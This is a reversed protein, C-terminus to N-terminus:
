QCVGPWLGHKYGSQEANSRKVSGSIPSGTECVLLYQAQDGHWVGCRLALGVGIQRVSSFRPGLLVLPDTWTPTAMFGGCKVEKTLLLPLLAGLPQPGAQSIKGRM